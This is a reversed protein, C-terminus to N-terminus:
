RKTSRCNRDARAATKLLAAVSIQKTLHRRGDLWPGARPIWTASAAGATAAQNFTELTEIFWARTLVRAAGRHQDEPITQLVAEMEKLAPSVSPKGPIWAGHACEAVFGLQDALFLATAALPCEFHIPPGSKTAADSEGELCARHRGLLAFCLASHEEYSAHVIRRRDVHTGWTPTGLAQRAAAPRPAVPGGRGSRFLAPWDRGPHVLVHGCDACTWAQPCLPDLPSFCRPCVDRLTCGHVPCKDVRLDQFVVQHVFGELCPQCYRIGLQWAAREALNPLGGAHAFLQNGLGEPLELGARIAAADQPAPFLWAERARPLVGALEEFVDAVSAAAVFALKNAVSWLSEGPQYWAPNWDHLRM